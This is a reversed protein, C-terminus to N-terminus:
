PALPRGSADVLPVGYERLIAEIAPRNEDLLRQLEAKAEDVGERDRCLLEELDAPLEQGRHADWSAAREPQAQRWSELRADLGQREAKKADIRAAFFAKVASTSTERILM